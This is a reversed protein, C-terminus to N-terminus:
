LALYGSEDQYTLGKRLSKGDTTMIGGDGYLAELSILTCKAKEGNVRPQGLRWLTDRPGQRLAGSWVGAGAEGGWKTGEFLKRTAPNNNPVALWDGRDPGQGVRREITLGAQNLARRVKLIDSGYEDDGTFWAELVQGVTIRSGNRWADVPVTLLHGLCLRWNELADDFEAMAQPALIERWPKVDGDHTHSLREESWGEHAIMDACALLTGFTDQGRGDMGAAELEGKFARWTLDFRHFEEVLRRLVIRGLEQYAAPDMPPPAQGDPLRHLRLLAFRSLDQPEMPPANISSFIFASLIKFDTGTGRDGGRLGAGGSSAQRALELLSKARSNDAKAEFEDIGVPLCDQKVHQYIGAATTNTTQILWGAFIHKLIEQLTSKGSGKDGTMYVASRWPLAAGLFAVGIWGILLHADVDPRAWAWTSFVQRLITAPNVDLELSKLWGYPGPIAPRAPYVYGDHEGPELVRPKPAPSVGEDRRGGAGPVSLVARGLHVVLGGRGDSWCGCGRVKERANWTGKITCAKIIADRVDENRWGEISFKVGAETEKAKWQPWAWKVWEAEGKFLLATRGKGFPDTYTVLQGIPDLLWCVDGDIGLPTVPCDPPLGLANPSWQGPLVGNRPEEPALARKAVPAAQADAVLARVRALNPKPNNSTGGSM